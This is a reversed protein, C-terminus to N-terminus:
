RGSLSKAQRIMWELQKPRPDAPYAEPVGALQQLLKETSVEDAYPSSVLWESFSASTAALRMPVSAQEMAKAPGDYALTWEHERYDATNPLRYRVRVVGLPGEGAPNVQVTYLANGAEAAGIEAADVKNDRFEEKKLQHKAYGFQRFVTVRKPNWEVQVKVDSAAVKLAGALQAAFETTAAEPSNVFGYRGDGNRSLAELLDDNYGEWGIGFCDLAVGQQRYAVVKKKLSAPEVDGLNAAGDTLLVVRNVGNPQYHKQATQYALNMAEELNTGGEPTLAGVMKPLDQIKAGGLGDVWLRATRAFAVVSVTDQTQLQSALVRLCEQRIRVRDAREMSGSNDLLLVINLPKGPERGIAATQVSFRLLDRDHAFPYRAREWAFAIRSNGTPEPDHYNLANIFEETRVSGPDPMLGKELSAAALKFSVDSVNLSFTSFANQATIVEPQPIGPPTAPPRQPAPEEKVVQKTEKAQKVLEEVQKGDQEKLSKLKDVNLARGVKVSKAFEERSFVTAKPLEIKALDYSQTGQPGNTVFVSDFVTGDQKVGKEAAAVPAPMPTGPIGAVPGAAQKLAVVGDSYLDMAVVPEPAAVTGAPTMPLGNMERKLGEVGLAEREQKVASLKARASAAVEDRQIESLPQKRFEFTQGKQAVEEQVAGNAQVSYSEKPMPNLVVGLAPKKSEIKQDVVDLRFGDLSKNVMDASSLNLKNGSAATINARLGSTLMEGSSPSGSPADLAAQNKVGKLQEQLQNVTSPANKKQEDPSSDLTQAYTRVQDLDLSKGAPLVYAHRGIFRNKNGDKAPSPPVELMGFWEPKQAEALDAKAKGETSGSKKEAKESNFSSYFVGQNPMSGGSASPQQPMIKLKQETDNVVLGLEAKEEMRKALDVQAQSPPTYEERAKRWADVKDGGSVNGAAGAMQGASLPKGPAPTIFRNRSTEAWRDGDTDPRAARGMLADERRPTESPKPPAPPAAPDTQFNLAVGRDGLALVRTKSAPNEVLKDSGDALHAVAAGESRADITWAGGQVQKSRTMFDDRRQLDTGYAKQDKGAIAGFDMSSDAWKTVDALAKGKEIPASPTTISGLNGFEQQVPKNYSDDADAVALAPLAINGMNRGASIGSADQIQVGVTAGGVSQAQPVFAGRLNSSRNDQVAYSSSKGSNISADDSYFAVANTSLRGSVTVVTRDASLNDRPDSPRPLPAAFTVEPEGTKAMLSLSTNEEQRRQTAIVGSGNVDLAYFPDATTVAGAAPETMQARYSVKNMKMIPFFGFEGERKPLMLWGVALMGVLMAALKLLDAKQRQWFSVKVVKKEEKAKPQAGQFVALLEARREEALTLPEPIAQAQVPVSPEAAPASAEKVLGLVLQLRDHLRMLGADEALVARVEAEEEASLEGLLMATIRVEFEEPNFDEPKM